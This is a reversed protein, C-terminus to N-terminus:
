RNMEFDTMYKDTKRCVKDLGWLEVGYTIRSECLMEYIDELTQTNKLIVRELCKDAYTLTDNGKAEEV